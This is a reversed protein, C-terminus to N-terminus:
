GIKLIGIAGARILELHPQRPQTELVTVYWNCREIYDSSEGTRNQGRRGFWALERQGIM